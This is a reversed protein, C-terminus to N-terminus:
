KKDRWVTFVIHIGCCLAATGIPLALDMGQFPIEFYGEPLVHCPSPKM